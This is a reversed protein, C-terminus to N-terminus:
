VINITYTYDSAFWYGNPHDLRDEYNHMDADGKMVSRFRDWNAQDDRSIYFAGIRRFEGRKMTACLLLGEVHDMVDTVPLLYVELMETLMGSADSLKSLRDDFSVSDLAVHAKTCKIVCPTHGWYDHTRPLLGRAMFGKVKMRGAEVMGFNDNDPKYKMDLDIVEICTERTCQSPDPYTVEGDISTWTWTPARYKTPRRGQEVRWLLAHPLQPKWLGVMYDQDRLRNRAMYQKVLGVMALLKDSSFTLRKTSYMKVLQHWNGHRQHHIRKSFFEVSERNSPPRMTAPLGKPFVESCCMQQCEWVLENRTFHLTRKALCREQFAWARKDLPSSDILDHWLTSRLIKYMGDDIGLGNAEVVCPQLAAVNRAYILGGTDEKSSTASINLVAEFYVRHMQGIEKLVAQENDHMICLADIWLYRFGLREAVVAAEAYTKPLSAVAVGQRLAALTGKHLQVTKCRGWCHSLTVYDSWPDVFMGDVLKVGPAGKPGRVTVDLLHTPKWSSGTDAVSCKMHNFTCDQIWQKALDFSEKSATSVSRPDITRVGPEVAYKPHMLILEVVLDSEVDLGGLSGKSSTTTPTARDPTVPKLYRFKLRAQDRAIPSIWAFGVSDLTSGRRFTKYADPDISMFVTLCLHCKGARVALAELGHHLIEGSETRPTNPQFISQCAVCLPSATLETM